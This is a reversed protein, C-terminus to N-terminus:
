PAEVFYVTAYLKMFDDLKLHFIGDNKGELPMPESEGWPNRLQVYKVGNEEKYGLISYAHDSYVGTNAYIAEQSEGHTGAGIPLKADVSAKVQAWVDDANGSVYLQSADQGLIDQFVSSVHGGNGIANYSGGKFVAYAKELIPFWMEMDEPTRVGASAGYLPGGWGRVFLDGDVKVVVDKYKGGASWDRQKFTVEYWVNEKGTASDIERKETMMKEFTGPMHKAISAIAAPFYCDGIQGQFVDTHTAGEVFLPGRFREMAFKPKGQADLEDAHLTPDAINFSEVVAAQGAHRVSLKALEKTLQADIVGDTVRVSFQDGTKGPLKTGSPFTGNKDFTVDTHEGTRENVFRMVAGPESVPRSSNINAVAITGNGNDSLGIRFLAVDAGRTEAGIGTAKFDVWESAATTTGETTKIRLRIVDGQQMGDLKASFTGDAAITGLVFTEDAHLRASPITSLNTVEVTAGPVGRLTLVGDKQDGVVSVKGDLSVAALRGASLELLQKADASMTLVGRDIMSLILQQTDAGLNKKAFAVLDEGAAPTAPLAAALVLERARDGTVSFSPDTARQQEWGALVRQADALAREGALNTREGGLNAGRLEVVSGARLTITSADRTMPMQMMRHVNPTNNYPNNPLATGLSTMLTLGTLGVLLGKKMKSGLAGFMGMGHVANRAGVDTSKKAPVEAFGLAKNAANVNASNAVNSTELSETTVSQTQSIQVNAPLVAPRHDAMNKRAYRPTEGGGKTKDIPM